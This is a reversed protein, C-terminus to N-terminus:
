LLQTYDLGEIWERKNFDRARFEIRDEFVSVLWGHSGTFDDPYSGMVGPAVQGPGVAGDNVYLPGKPDPHAIDPYLHIHGSFFVINPKGALVSFLEDDDELSNSESWSGPGTNAVTDFLPEHCFVFSTKNQSADDDLLQRLWDIQTSSFNFRGWSGTMNEDPGLCIFHLGKLDRDYYVNSVGAQEMFRMYQEDIGAKEPDFDASYQDHNGMVMTFDDPYSYGSSECISKVLAYQEAKGSETIDGLLVITNPAPDFSRIDALANVLHDINRTLDEDIHTDSMVVFSTIFADAKVRGVDTADTFSSLADFASHSSPERSCAIGNTSGVAGIAIIGAQILRRRTINRM